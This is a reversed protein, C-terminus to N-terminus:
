TTLVRQRVPLARNPISYLVSSHMTRRHLLGVVILLWWVPHNPLEPSLNGQLLLFVLPDREPHM